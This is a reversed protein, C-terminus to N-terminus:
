LNPSVKLSACPLNSGKTRLSIPIGVVTLWYRDLRTLSSSGSGAPMRTGWSWPNIFVLVPSIFCIGPCFTLAVPLVVLTYPTILPLIVFLYSLSEWYTSTCLCNGVKDTLTFASPVNAPVGCVILYVFSTLPPVGNLPKLLVGSIILTVSLFPVSLWTGTVKEDALVDIGDWINSTCLWTSFYLSTKASFFISSASTFSKTDLRTGNATDSAVFTYSVWPLSCFVIFFNISAM